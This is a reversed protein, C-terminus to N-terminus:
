SGSHSPSAKCGSAVAVMVVVVVIATEFLAHWVVGVAWVVAAVEM